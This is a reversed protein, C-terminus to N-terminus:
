LLLMAVSACASGFLSGQGRGHLELSHAAALGVEANVDDADESCLMEASLSVANKPWHSTPSRAGLSRILLPLLCVGATQPQVYM